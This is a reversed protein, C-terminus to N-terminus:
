TKLRTLLQCHTPQGLATTHGSGSIHGHANTDGQAWPSGRGLWVVPVLASTHTPLQPPAM